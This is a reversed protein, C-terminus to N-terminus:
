IEDEFYSILRKVRKEYTHNHANKRANSVINNRLSNNNKIERIIRPVEEAAKYMLCNKKDELLGDYHDYPCIIITGTAMLEYFRTGIIGNASKTCLFTISESLFKFYKEGSPLLSKMSLSKALPHREAWYVTIDKVEKKTVPKFSFLRLVGINAPLLLGEELCHWNESTYIKNGCKALLKHLSSSDKMFFEKKVLFREDLYSKHLAGTFSFDIKKERSIFIRSLDVAFPLQLFGCNISIGNEKFWEKSMVSVILDIYNLKAYELKAELNIYEKNLFYVKKGKTIKPLSINNHINVDGDGQSQGPKDWSTSMIIYDYENINSNCKKLVDNIYDSESYHPYGPGYLDCEAISCLANVWDQHYYGGTYGEYNQSLILVKM